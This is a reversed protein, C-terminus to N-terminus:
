IRMAPVQPFQHNLRVAILHLHMALLLPFAPALDQPLIPSPKAMPRLDKLALIHPLLLTTTRVSLLLLVKLHSPAALALLLVRTRHLIKSTASLMARGVAMAAQHHVVAEAEASALAVLAEEVVLRLTGVSAVVVV